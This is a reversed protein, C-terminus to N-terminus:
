QQISQSELSPRGITRRVAFLVLMLALLLFFANGVRLLVVSGKIVSPQIFAHLGYAFAGGAGLSLTHIPKWAARRGYVSVFTLFSLDLILLAAVAFWNWQGPVLLVAMGLLFTVAGTTWPSMVKGEKAAQKQPLLFAGVILCLCLFLNALLKTRSAVFPDNKLTFATSAICGMLFLVAVVCHGLRGLWPSRNSGPVCAEVLAISVSISWFVHLNFMFVTWWAGMGLVPVYAHDLLHMQMRLYDPNFLSQTTFGEEILTYAAGLLFITPWGRKSSRAAERILLAGGGYMPALIILAGLLAIPLNGLLYEAVLPAVFFLLLAYGWARKPKSQHM